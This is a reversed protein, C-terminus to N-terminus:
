HLPDKSPTGAKRPYIKPTATMKRIMVIKREDGNPLRFETINEIKGGLKKVAGDAMQMEEELKGSKYPAFLGGKKVLPICYESLTALNAVARSVCIDYVERHEKMRGFDEARAHIARIGSLGNEEACTELFRIRKGLSDVLTVDLDPFVIKLPIGPFGAGTGVDVLSGSIEAPNKVARILSVSDTFHKTIVDNMETIATLNMVKNWEVLMEFYHYFQETQKGTLSIGMESMERKLRAVFEENMSEDQRGAPRKQLRKNIQKM